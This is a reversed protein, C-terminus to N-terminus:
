YGRSLWLSCAFVDPVPRHCVGPICAHSRRMAVSTHSNWVRQLISFQLEWQLLCDWPAMFLLATRVVSADSGVGCPVAKSVGRARACLMICEANAFRWLVRAIGLRPSLMRERAASILVSRSAKSSATSVTIPGSHSISYQTSCFRDPIIDAKLSGFPLLATITMFSPCTSILFFSPPSHDSGHLVSFGVSALEMSAASRPKSLIVPM